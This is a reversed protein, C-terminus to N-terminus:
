LNMWDSPTHPAYINLIALDGGPLGSLRIWQGLNCKINGNSHVLHKLKPSVFTCIGGSGAGDGDAMHNYAVSAEYPFFSADRWVQHGLDTLRQGRLKHEQLCLIDLSHLQEQYFTGYSTHPRLLM